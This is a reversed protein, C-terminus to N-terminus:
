VFYAKIWSKIPVRCFPCTGHERQLKDACQWCTGIHNCPQLLACKAGVMCVNCTSAENKPAPGSSHYEAWHADICAQGCRKVPCLGCEAVKEKHSYWLTCGVCEQWDCEGLHKRHRGAADCRPCFSTKCRACRWAPEKSERYEKIKCHSCSWTPPHSMEMHKTLCTDSCYARADPAMARLVFGDSDRPVDPYCVICCRPQRVPSSCHFIDCTSPIPLSTVVWAPRFTQEDSSSNTDADVGRLSAGPAPWMDSFPMPTGTLTRTTGRVTQMVSQAGSPSQSPAGNSAFRPLQYLHALLPIYDSLLRPPAGEPPMDEDLFYFRDPDRKRLVWVRPCTARIVGLRAWSPSHMSQPDCLALRQLDYMEQLEIEVGSFATRHFMDRDGRALRFGDPISDFPSEVGRQYAVHQQSLQQRMQHDTHSEWLNAVYGQPPPPQPPLDGAHAAQIAAAHRREMWQLVLDEVWRHLVRQRGSPWQETLTLHRLVRGVLIAFEESDQPIPSVVLTLEAAMTMRDVEPQTLLRLDQTTREVPARVDSSSTPAPPPAPPHLPPVDEEDAQRACHHCEIGHNTEPADHTSGSPAACQRYLEPLENACANPDAQLMWFAIGSCLVWVNPFVTWFEAWDSSDQPPIRRPLMTIALHQIRFIEVMNFRSSLIQREREQSLWHCGAPAPWPATQVDSDFLGDYSDPADSVATVAAELSTADHPTAPEPTDPLSQMHHSHEVDRADLIRGIPEPVKRYLNALMELTGPPEMQLVAFRRDHCRLVWVGPYQQWFATLIGRSTSARTERRFLYDWQVM